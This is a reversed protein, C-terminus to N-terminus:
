DRRSNLTFWKGSSASLTVQGALGASPPDPAVHPRSWVVLRTNGAGVTRITAMAATLAAPYNAAPAGLINDNECPGPIFWRGRLRRGLVITDTILSVGGQAQAPLLDTANTGPTTGANGTLIATISGTAPDIVDVAPQTALVFAASIRLTLDAWFQAVKNTAVVASTNDEVDATFYATHLKSGGPGGTILTRVRMM